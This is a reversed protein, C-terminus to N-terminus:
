LRAELRRDPGGFELVSKASAGAALRSAIRADYIKAIEALGLNSTVILPCDARVNLIRMIADYHADSPAARCGIDDLVVLSRDHIADWMIRSDFCVTGLHIGLFYRPRDKAVCTLAEIADTANIWLPADCVAREYLFGAFASKGTGAPGHIYVPWDSVGREALAVAHSPLAERRLQRRSNPAHDPLRRAPDRRFAM